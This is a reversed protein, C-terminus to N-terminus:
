CQLGMRGRCHMSCQPTDPLLEINCTLIYPMTLQRQGRVAPCREREEAAPRQIIVFKKGRKEQHFQCGIIKDKVIVASIKLGGYDVHALQDTEKAPKAMFSHLFYVADM